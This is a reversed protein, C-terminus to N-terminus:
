WCSVHYRVRVGRGSYVTYKVCVACRAGVWALPPGCAARRDGCGVRWLTRMACNAMFQCLMANPCNM